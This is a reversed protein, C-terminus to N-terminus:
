IKMKYFGTKCKSTDFGQKSLYKLFGEQKFHSVSKDLYIIGTYHLFMNWNYGHLNKLWIIQYDNLPQHNWKKNSFSDIILINEHAIKIEAPNNRIVWEPQSIPQNQGLYGKSTIHPICHFKFDSEVFAPFVCSVGQPNQITLLSYKGMDYFVLETTHTLTNKRFNQTLFFTLFCSIGALLYAPKNRKESFILFLIIALSVLILEIASIYYGEIFANPINQIIDIVARIFWLYASLFYALISGVLPISHFIFLAVALYVAVTIAPIVILNSIFFLVPFQQFYFLGLPFTALQAAVSVALLTYVKDLFWSSTSSLNRLKNKLYVIGAVALYSFQFGVNMLNLPNIILLIFASFALTNYINTFQKLHKGLALVTFMLAARNVSASFGTLLAFGWLVLLILALQINRQRTTKDLFGLLKSVLLFLIGVHLGSVALVHMTGTHSFAEVTYDDLESKDGLLLAKVIAQDSPNALYQEIVKQLSENLRFGIHLLKNKTGVGVICYNNKRAFIQYDINKYHLYKQYDFENPNAPPPIKIPEGHIDVIDGYNPIHEKSLYVLIKGQTTHEMSDFVSLVEAECKWFKTTEIPPQTLRVRLKTTDFFGFYNPKNRDFSFHSLSYGLLGIIIFIQIGQATKLKFKLSTKVFFLVFYGALAALLIFAIIPSWFPFFFYASIGLLLPILLRVFPAEKWFNNTQM